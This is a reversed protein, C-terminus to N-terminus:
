IKKGNKKDNKWEFAKIIKLPHFCAKSIGHSAPNGYWSLASLDTVNLLKGDCNFHAALLCRVAINNKHM